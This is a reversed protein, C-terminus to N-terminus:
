CQRRGHQDRQHGARAQADRRDADTSVQLRASFDGDAAKAVVQGVDNVVAIMAEARAARETAAARDRQELERVRMSKDRFVDVVRAMSGVEDERHLHRIDTELEGNAVASMDATVDRVTNAVRRLLVVVVPVLLLLIAATQWLFSVIFHMISAMAPGTDTLSVVDAPENNPTPIRSRAVSYRTGAVDLQYSGTETSAPLAELGKITSASVKDGRVFVIESGSLSKLEAATPARLYSGVKITGVVVGDQLLPAVADLGIEGSSASVAYGTSRQGRLADRVLPDGSKNDGSSDPRHGRMLVIGKEDTVELSAVAPDAKRVGEFMKVLRARLETKDKRAVASSVVPNEAILDSHGLMRHKVGDLVQVARDRATLTSAALDNLTDRRMTWVTLGALASAILICSLMLLATLQLSLSRRFSSLM